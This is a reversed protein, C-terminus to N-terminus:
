REIGVTPSTICNKRIDHADSSFYSCSFSLSEDLHMQSYLNSYEYDLQLDRSM